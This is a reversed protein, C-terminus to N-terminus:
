RSFHRFGRYDSIIGLYGGSVRQPPRASFGRSIPDKEVKEGFGALSRSNQLCSTVPEIGTPEM